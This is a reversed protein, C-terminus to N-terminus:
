SNEKRNAIDAKAMARMCKSSLRKGYKSKRYAGFSRITKRETKDNTM